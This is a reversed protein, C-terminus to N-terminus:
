SLKQTHGNGYKVQKLRETGPRYTNEVLMRSGVAVKTLNRYADYTMTYSQNDGRTIKTLDDYANYEYEVTGQETYVTDGATNETKAKVTVKETRGAGDYEYETRNGCRDIVATPKSSVPDYEYKTVNGRADTEETKNNGADGIADGPNSDDYRYATYLTGLEGNQFTTGTLANGYSDMAEEFTITEVEDGTTGSSRFADGGDDTEEAGGAPVFDSESLGEAYSNRVLQLDTVTISKSNNYNAVLVEVHDVSRYVDKSFQVM